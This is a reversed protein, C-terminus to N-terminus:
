GGIAHMAREPKRFHKTGINHGAWKAKITRAFLGAIDEDNANGRLLPKLDCEDLSFLCNRIKGEATIRLRDCANCFPESVSSIFGIEGEGNNISFRRAPESPSSPLSNVTYSKSVRELIEDQAIVADHRWLNNSDLPMFEIFRVVYPKRAAWRAFDLIENDNVGRMVVCNIKIPFLGAREAAALGEMVQFFGDHHAIAKFKLPNLTDLSITIGSLGAKKLPMALGSLLLGNTTMSVKEIRPLASLMGILTEVNRRLTPEGGTLRIKTIGMRSLIEAIRAIEEFSLIENKPLWTVREAPM